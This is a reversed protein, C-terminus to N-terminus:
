TRRTAASTSIAPRRSSELGVYSCNGYSKFLVVIVEREDIAKNMWSSHKIRTESLPMFRVSLLLRFTNTNERKWFKLWCRWPTDMSLSFDATYLTLSVESVRFNPNVAVAAPLYDKPLTRRDRLLSSNRTTFKLPAEAAVNKRPPDYVFM